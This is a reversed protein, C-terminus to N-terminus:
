EIEVKQAFGTNASSRSNALATTLLSACQTSYFDVVWLFQVNLGASIAPYSEQPEAIQAEPEIRPVLNIVIFIRM